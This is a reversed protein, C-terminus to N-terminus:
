RGYRGELVATSLRRDAIADALEEASFGPQLASPGDLAIVEFRYTHPDDGPPPCPGAWGISGFGNTGEVAEPPLAGDLRSTDPPLGAVLWHAFAGGPADPDDVVLVLEVPEADGAEWRLPPPRDAGDCTHEGPIEAGDAFAPSHLTGTDPVADDVDRTCGVAMGLLLLALLWAGVDV